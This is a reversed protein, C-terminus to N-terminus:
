VGKMAAQERKLREIEVVSENLSARLTKNKENLASIQHALRQGTQVAAERRLQTLVQPDIDPHAAPAAGVSESPPDRNLGNMLSTAPPESRVRKQNDTKQQEISAVKEALANYDDALQNHKEIAELAHDRADLYANAIQTLINVSIHLRRVRDRLLWDLYLLAFLVSIAFASATWFVINHITEAVIVRRWSTVSEGLNQNDPNIGNLANDWIGGRLHAHGALPDYSRQAANKDVPAPNQLEGHGEAAAPVSSQPRAHSAACVTFLLVSLRIMKM